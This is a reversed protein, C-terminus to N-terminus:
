NIKFGRWVSLILFKQSIFSKMLVALFQQLIVELSLMNRSSLWSRRRSCEAKSVGAAVKILGQEAM